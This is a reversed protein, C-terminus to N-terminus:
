LLPVIASRFESISGAEPEVIVSAAAILSEPCITPRPVFASLPSGM